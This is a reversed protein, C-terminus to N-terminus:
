LIRLDKQKLDGMYRVRPKFVYFSLITPNFRARFNGASSVVVSELVRYNRSYLTDSPPTANTFSTIESRILTRKSKPAIYCKEQM